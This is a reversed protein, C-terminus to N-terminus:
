FQIWLDPYSLIAWPIWLFSTRILSVKTSLVRGYSEFFDRLRRESTDHNLNGVFITGGGAGDDGDGGRPTERDPSRGARSPPSRSPSASMSRTNATPSGAQEERRRKYGTSQDKAPTPLFEGTETDKPKLIFFFVTDTFDFARDPVYQLHFAQDTSYYRLNAGKSWLRYM